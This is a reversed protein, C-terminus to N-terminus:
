HRALFVLDSLGVSLVATITAVGFMLVLGVFSFSAVQTFQAFYFACAALLSASRALDFGSIVHSSGGFCNCAVPMRRALMASITAAFVVFLTTAVMMAIWAVEGGFLLLTGVGGELVIVALAVVRSWPGTIGFVTALTGQFARVGGVKGIAAAFLVLMVYFRCAEGIYAATDNM